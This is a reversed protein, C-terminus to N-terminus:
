GVRTIEKKGSMPVVRSGVRMFDDSPNGGRIDIREVPSNHTKRERSKKPLGVCIEGLFILSAAALMLGGLYFLGQLDDMSMAEAIKPQEFVIKEEDSALFEEKMRIWTNFKYHDVLGAELQMRIIKDFRKRWPNFKYFAWGANISQNM